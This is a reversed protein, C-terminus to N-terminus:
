SMILLMIEERPARITELFTNNVEIFEGSELDSIAMLSPNMYWATSFRKESELNIMKINLLGIYPTGDARKLKLEYDKVMGKEDMIKLLKSREKPDVYTSELRVENIEELTFKTLDEMKKNITIVEGAKNSIGIGIPSNDFILRYKEESEKLKQETIKRDTIDISVNMAASRGDYLITRAYVDLWITNGNKKIIRIEFHDTTKKGGLQNNLSIKKGWDRDDPHIINLFGEPELNLLEERTYGLYDAMRQNIYKIGMDQIISIGVMSYDAITKYKEESEQLQNTREKVKQELELSLKMYKEESEKRKTIDTFTVAFFNKKPSYASVNYWRDLSESYNEFNIPVGTLAVEGFVGIWDASDDEVGPLVQKVTKGIIEDIKLGTFEQFPPNAELFEYDVPNNEEDVIIKHYAFGSTMNEFLLRYKEESKRLNLEAKKRKTAENITLVLEVVENNQNKIPSLSWDWYSVGREPSEAYQFPKADIIYSEGTEVVNKFIKENEINPYLDFHNKGVYFLPDKEDAKAYAMNVNLFNFQHDLHAIMVLSHDIVTKLSDASKNLKKTFDSIKEELFSRLKPYDEDPNKLLDKLMGLESNSIIIQDSLNL